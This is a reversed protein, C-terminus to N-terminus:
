ENVVTCANVGLGALRGTGPVYTSRSTCVQVTVDVKGDAGFVCAFWSDVVLEVNPQRVWRRAEGNIVRGGLARGVIQARRGWARWAAAPTAVDLEM